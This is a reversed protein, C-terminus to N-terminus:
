GGVAARPWARDAGIFAIPFREHLLTVTSQQFFGAGSSASRSAWCGTRPAVAAVSAATPRIGTEGDLGTWRRRGFSISGAHATYATDFASKFSRRQFDWTRLASGNGFGDVARRWFAFCVVTITVLSVAATTDAGLKDAALPHGTCRWWVARKRSPHSELVLGHIILLRVHIKRVRVRVRVRVYVYISIYIGHGEKM